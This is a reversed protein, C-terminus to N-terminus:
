NLSLPQLRPGQEIESKVDLEKKRMENSCKVADLFCSKFQQELLAINPMVCHGGIVGPQFLVNPLYSIERFFSGMEMYDAQVGEAFRNMEQAWAILVGFYTTELLKALELTEPKSIVNQKLGASELHASVKEVADADSGAVFKVYSKMDNAMCVHKGRVPSYVCPRKTKAAIARTTGPVVTSNVVIIEPAYKDAYAVVANQFQESSKFPFCIHLIGVQENVEVPDIDIGIVKPNQEYLISYLPKGVEGMGIVLTVANVISKM